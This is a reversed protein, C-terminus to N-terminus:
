EESNVNLRVKFAQKALRRIVVVRIFHDFELYVKWM